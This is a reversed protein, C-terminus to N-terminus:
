EGGEPRHGCSQCWGEHRGCYYRYLDKLSLEDVDTLRDYELENAMAVIFDALDDPALTPDAYPMITLYLDDSEASFVEGDNETVIMGRPLTFGLGYEDWVMDKQSYVVPSSLCFAFLM